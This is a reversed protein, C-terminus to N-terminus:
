SIHEFSIYSSVIHVTYASDHTLIVSTSDGDEAQFTVWKTPSTTLTPIEVLENYTGPRVNFIVNGCVGDLILSQVADNFTAYDPSSGGITYTGSLCQSKGISSILILFITIKKM